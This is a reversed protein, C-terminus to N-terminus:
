SINVYSILGLYIEQIIQIFKEKKKNRKVLMFRIYFM